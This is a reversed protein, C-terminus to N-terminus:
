ERGLYDHNFQELSIPKSFLYGQYQLCGLETLTHLEDQTEVGEAIVSLELNKALSIITEALKRNTSNQNLETVFSRDIKLKSLPLSALYSLSSYGTGFDDIAVSIGSAKLEAMAERALDKHALLMTETIEVELHKGNLGRELLQAKIFAPLTNNEFQSSSINIALKFDPQKAILESWSCLCDLATSIVWAGIEHIIGTEEAIPIFEEPSVHGLEPNYWRLLAEAGILADNADYQPQFVLSLEQRELATYLLTFLKHQRKASIRLAETFFQYKQMANRKASYMALDAETFGDRISRESGSLTTIGISAGISVTNHDLKLPESLTALIDEAIQALHEKIQEAQDFTKYISFEDGGLRALKAGHKDAVVQFTRAVLQLLHDGVAHGLTDNVQKFRDLDIFLLGGLCHASNEITQQLCRRNALGTLPDIFAQQEIQQRYEMEDTIDQYTGLVGIVHGDANRMPAKNTRLWRTKKGPITLAEEINLKPIGSEIVIRDDARKPDAAEPSDYFAYDSKGILDELCGYGIDDLLNQNAGLYNLETDKWFVRMPITDLVIRLLQEPSLVQKNSSM